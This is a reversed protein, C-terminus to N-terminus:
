AASIIASTVVSILKFLAPEASHAFAFSQLLYTLTGLLSASLSVAMFGNLTVCSIEKRTIERPRKFSLSGTM